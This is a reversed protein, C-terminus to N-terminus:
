QGQPELLSPVHEGNEFVNAQVPTQNKVLADKEIMTGIKAQPQSLTRKLSSKKKVSGGINTITSSRTLKKKRSKTPKNNNAFSNVDTMIIQITSNKQSKSSKKPPEQTPIKKFCGMKPITSNRPIPKYGGMMSGPTPSPPLIKAVSPVTDNEKVASSNMQITTPSSDINGSNDKSTDRPTQFMENSAFLQNKLPTFTKTASGFNNNLFNTTEMNKLFNPTSFNMNMNLSRLPTRGIQPTRSLMPSENIIDRYFREPSNFALDVNFDHVGPQGATNLLNLGGLPISGNSGASNTFNGQQLIHSTMPTAQFFGDQISSVWSDYDLSSNNANSGSTNINSYTMNGMNHHPTGGREQNDRNM